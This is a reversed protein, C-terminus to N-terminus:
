LLCCGKFNKEGGLRAQTISRKAAKARCTRAVLQDEHKRGREGARTGEREVRYVDSNTFTFIRKNVRARRSFNLSLKQSFLLNPILLLFIFFRM